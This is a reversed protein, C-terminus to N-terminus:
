PPSRGLCTRARSPLAAEVNVDSITSWDGASMEWSGTVSASPTGILHGAVTFTNAGSTTALASLAVGILLHKTM